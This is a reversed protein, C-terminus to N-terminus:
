LACLRLRPRPKAGEPPDLGPWPRGDKDLVRGRVSGLPELKVRLPSGREGRVKQVKGLNNTPHYFVLM